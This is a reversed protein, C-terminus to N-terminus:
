RVRNANLWGRDWATKMYWVSLNLIGVYGTAVKTAQIDWDIMSVNQEYAAPAAM